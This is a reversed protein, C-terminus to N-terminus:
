VPNVCPTCFDDLGPCLMRSAAPAPACRGMPQQLVIDTRPDAQRCGSGGWCRTGPSGSRVSMRFAESSPKWVKETYKKHSQRERPFLVLVLCLYPSVSYVNEKAKLFNGSFAFHKM